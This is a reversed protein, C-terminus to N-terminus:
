DVPVEGADPPIGDFWESDQMRWEGSRREVALTRPWGDSWTSWGPPGEFTQATRYDRQATQAFTVAGRYDVGNLKQAESLPEPELTFSLARVQRFRVAPVGPMLEGLLNRQQLETTWGGEGEVWHEAIKSRVYSAAERDLKTPKSGDAHTIAAEVEGEDGGCAAGGALALVALALRLPHAHILASM